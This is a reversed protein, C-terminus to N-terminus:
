ILKSIKELFGSTDNFCPKKIVMDALNDEPVFEPHGTLIIVPLNPMKEKLIKTLEAGNMIPMQFDTIVLDPVFEYQIKSLAHAASDCFLTLYGGIHRLVEETTYGMSIDDDVVIIRKKEGM